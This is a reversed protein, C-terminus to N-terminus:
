ESQKHKQKIQNKVDWDVHHTTVHNKSLYVTCFFPQSRKWLSTKLSLLYLNRQTKEDKGLFTYVMKWGVNKGIYRYWSIRMFSRVKLVSETVIKKTAFISCSNYCYVTRVVVIKKTVSNTSLTLLKFVDMRTANSRPFHPSSFPTYGKPYLHSFM